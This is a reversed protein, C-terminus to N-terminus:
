HIQHDQELNELAESADMWELEQEEVIAQHKKQDNLLEKLTNSEGEYLSNDSLQEEIKELASTAKAMTKELKNITKTLSKKKEKYEISLARKKSPVKSQQEAKVKDISKQKSTSLWAHYDELTGDFVQAKANDVLIFSEVTSRLLHRDHSVIVVAGEYAQLAVTLAHRMELDLHNTPEDLLLVNPKQWAIIALALRAKEGGSFKGVSDLAKDGIFGFSGLFNRLKQESEDPSLRQIHLLPTAKTDLYELQHQAFYGINLHQASTYDGNLLPIHKALTKILTTKGAGNHGLLGIRSSDLISLEIHDAIAINNDGANYGIAAESLTILVQPLKDPTPFSFNFPSDMHAPAIKEMRDLEKLRSQAQKAKSAKAKFRNVFQEIHAMREQQKEFAMAQQAMREAKQIEFRSYNGTYPVLKQNEYSVIHSIVNDLFDRDHSIIVLTGSYQNLWNELWLTADLDLHNTPEDLLLLDSPCMLAKALNLRIRWGGSFESVSRGSDTSKFGLGSLLQEARAQATYGDVHEFDAYLKALKEGDDKELAININNEITRYHTDGDLVYDLASTTTHDVEQAMHAIRWDAPLTINGSEEQITKLLLKFLTSKGCGNSGIVGWKQGHHVTLSADNLLTKIGRILTVNSLKIM